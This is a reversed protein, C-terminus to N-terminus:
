GELFPEALQIGSLQGEDAVAIVYGSGTFARCEAAASVMAAGPLWCVLIRAAARARSPIM